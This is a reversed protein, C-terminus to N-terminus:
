TRISSKAHQQYELAPDGKGTLLKNVRWYIKKMFWYLPPSILYLKATCRRKIPLFRAYDDCLLELLRQRLEDAHHDPVPSTKADIYWNFVNSICLLEWCGPTGYLELHRARLHSCAEIYHLKLDFTQLYFTNNQHLRRFYWTETLIISPTEIRAIVDLLFLTDEGSAITEPFSLGEVASRTLLKGGIAWLDYVRHNGFLDQLETPSFCLYKPTSPTLYDSLQFDEGVNSLVLGSFSCGLTQMLRLGTELAQPHILDDCDLFFFYDGHGHKLGMNRAISVGGHPLSLFFIRTDLSAYQECIESSRDSSGDDILLLEWYPYSQKLISEICASLFLEGNYIPVILTILANVNNPQSM